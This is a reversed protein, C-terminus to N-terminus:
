RYKRNMERKWEVTKRGRKSFLDQTNHRLTIDAAQYAQEHTMQQAMFPRAKQNEKETVYHVRRARDLICEVEKLTPARRDGFCKRILIVLEEGCRQRSNFHDRSPKYKNNRLKSHIAAISASGSWIHPMDHIVNSFFRGLDEIGAKTFIPNTSINTKTTLLRHSKDQIIAFLSDRKREYTKSM